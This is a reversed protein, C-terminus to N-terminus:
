IEGKFDREFYRPINWSKIKMLFALADDSSSCYPIKLDVLFSKEIVKKFLKYDSQYLNCFAMVYSIQFLPLMTFSKLRKLEKLFDVFEELFKYISNRQEPNIEVEGKKFIITFKTGPIDSFSYFVPAFFSFPLSPYKETMSLMFYYHDNQSSHFHLHDTMKWSKMQVNRTQIERESADPDIIYYIPIGLEEAAAFRHQGDIILLDKNVIIPSTPFKNPFTPDSKLSEV